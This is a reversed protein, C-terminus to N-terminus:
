FHDEHLRTIRYFSQDATGVSGGANLAVTPPPSRLHRDKDRTVTLRVLTRGLLFRVSRLVSLVESGNLCRAGFFRVSVTFTRRRFPCVSRDRFLPRLLVVKLHFPRVSNILRRRCGLGCIIRLRRVTIRFEKIRRGNTVSIRRLRCVRSRDVDITMNCRLFQHSYVSVGEKFLLLTSENVRTVVSMTRTGSRILRPRVREVTRSRPAARAQRHLSVKIRNNRTLVGVERVTIRGNRPGEQSCRDYADHPRGCVVLRILEEASMVRRYLGLCSIRDVLQPAAASCQSPDNVKLVKTSLGEFHRIRLSRNM